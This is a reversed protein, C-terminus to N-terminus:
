PNSAEVTVRARRRMPKMLGSDTTAKEDGHALVEFKDRPWGGAALAAAITNAREQSIKMNEEASGVADALGVIRVHDIKCGALGRQASKIIAKAEPSLEAHWPEFYIDFTGAHCATPDFSRRAGNDQEACGALALSFSFTLAAVAKRM